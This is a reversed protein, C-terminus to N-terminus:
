NELLGALSRRQETLQGRRLIAYDRAVLLKACVIDEPVEQLEVEDAPMAKVQEWRAKALAPNNLPYVEISKGQAEPIRSAPKLNLAHGDADLSFRGCCVDCRGDEMDLEDINGCDRCKYQCRAAHFQAFDLPPPLFWVGDDLAAAAVFRSVEDSFKEERIESVMDLAAMLQALSPKQLINFTPINNNLAQVIPAFIEWANWFGDTTLMTRIAQIKNKNLRSTSVNIRSRGLAAAMKPAMETSIEFWLIDPDWELWSRGFVAFLVESMAVPHTDHHGFLREPKVAEAIVEPM